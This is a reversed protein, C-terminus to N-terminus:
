KIKIAYVRLRVYDVFWGKDKDYLKSKLINRLETNFKIKDSQCLHSIIGNAFIDLWNSIDDIFTQRSVLNITKVEFGNHELINKYEIKDPFYWPNVFKGYQKNNDFVQQMGEIIYNLNGFGGFETVFRGKSKLAKYINQVATDKDKVWHLVANSFVADFKNEYILNTVDMKYAEIGKSKTKEIMDSSLDVAIVKAKSKMIELSLSGDGCGLDLIIEGEKPNLLDVLDIALDSVFSAHNKYNNANWKNM